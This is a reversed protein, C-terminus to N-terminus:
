DFSEIERNVFRSGRIMRILEEASEKEDAWAGFLDKWEKKKDVPEQEKLSDILRSALELKSSASLHRLLAWWSELGENNLDVIKM